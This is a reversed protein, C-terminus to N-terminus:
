AAPSTQAAPTPPLEFVERLHAEDAAGAHLLGGRVFQTLAAAWTQLDRSKICRHRLVPPRLGPGYNLLAWRRVLQANLTEEIWRASAEEATEFLEAQVTGLAQTGANSQGLNMFQALGAQVIKADHHQLFPMADALSRGSEFWEVTQTHPLVFAADEAARLRALIALLSQQDAETAGDQLKGVPVGLYNREIGIGMVKYLAQKIYYHPYMSRWLGFGQPNAAERNYVFHLTKELPVPVREYRMTVAGASDVLGQGVPRNGVFLFGALAGAEDYLWREVLEPNRSAVCRVWVAGERDEWVIEPIRFGYYIALCAERLLDDWSEEMGGFLNRGLLDAAEREASRAGAPPEVYWTTARIPLSIAQEVARVQADTRRMRTAMQVGRRGLLEANHEEHVMGGVIRAGGWAMEPGAREPVPPLRGTIRGLLGSLYNKM